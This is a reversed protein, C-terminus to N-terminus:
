SATVQCASRDEEPVGACIMQPTIGGFIAYASSYAADSIIQVTVEHLTTSPQSRGPFCTNFATVELFIKFAHRQNKKYSLRFLVVLM